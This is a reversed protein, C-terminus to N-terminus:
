HRIIISMGPRMGELRTLPRAKVEFTKLDYQGTQKTAKWAAFTGLDKVFYVKMKVEKDFAPLYATVVDGVKMGKLHDERINFTGWMDKMVSVNMIPSGTGVLEGVKPYIESVEGEMVALQVTEKLLSRVVDAASRAAVAQKAAATREERRAGNKAMEYQSLAAKVQADRAEYAALAEDRKQASLVGQDFLNQVRDYSKKAIDRAVVAQQYLEYAGKIQEERAGNQAMESMAAAAGQTAEAAKEQAVVEPAELIALTDGVKVYDGEKVKIDAIRGALKCSVRYETVELEGQITDEKEDLTFYGITGVIIIVMIFAIVALLINNHQSKATM